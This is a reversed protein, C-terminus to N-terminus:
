GRVPVIVCDKYMRPCHTCLDTNEILGKLKRYLNGTNISFHYNRKYIQELRHARCCPYVRKTGCLLVASICYSLPRFDNKITGYAQMDEHTFINTQVLREGLSRFLSTNYKNKRLIKETYPYISLCLNIKALSSKTLRKLEIGNTVFDVKTYPNIRYLFPILENIRPYLTPEGGSIKFNVVNFITNSRLNEYLIKINNFDKLISKEKGRDCYPCKLNCKLLPFIEIKFPADRRSISQTVGNEILIYYSGGKPGARFFQKKQRKM